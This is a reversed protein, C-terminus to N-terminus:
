RISNALEIMGPKGIREGSYIIEYAMGNEQWRLFQQPLGADWYLGLDAQTGPLSTEKITKTPQITQQVWGGSVYEGQVGRVQVPEVTASAGIRSYEEVTGLPHQTFVLYERGNTYFLAVAKLLTEVHAGRFAMEDPLSSITRLTYNTLKQAQQFGLSYYAAVQNDPMHYTTQLMLQDSNAPLFFRLLQRATAQVSPITFTVVLAALMIVMVLALRRLLRPSSRSPQEQWPAGGMKRYFRNGPQPRIRALLGEIEAESPKPLNKKNPFNEEDMDKM